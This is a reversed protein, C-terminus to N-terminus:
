SWCCSSFRLFFVTVCDNYFISIYINKKMLDEVTEKYVIQNIKAFLTRRQAVSGHISAGGYVFTSLGDTDNAM